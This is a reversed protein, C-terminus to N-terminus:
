NKDLHKEIKQILTDIEYPKPLFDNAMCWKVDGGIDSNASSLVVPIHKTASSSKLKRCIDRGDSGSLLVDLIILDPDFDTVKQFTMEFSDALAVDYGFDSLVMNLAGLIGNDDDVVLIKKM